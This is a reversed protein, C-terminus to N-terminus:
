RSKSSKDIVRAGLRTLAERLDEAAIPAALAAAEARAAASPAAVRRTPQRIDGLPGQRFAIRDICRWGLHANVREIIQAAAHQAEIAFAGDVRLVLTAPAIPADPDRRPPRPPWQIEIPQAFKAIRPGAIEAWQTLLSSEGLGRKALSPTVLAKLFSGLPQAYGQKTPPPPKM